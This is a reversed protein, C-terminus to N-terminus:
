DTSHGIVFPSPESERPYFVRPTQLLDDKSPAIDCPKQQRDRVLSGLLLKLELSPVARTPYDLWPRLYIQGDDHAAKGQKLGEEILAYTLLGHRIDKSEWADQNPQAATLVYMGKDYALQALGLSNMPGGRDEVPGLAQGSNCADILLVLRGADIREFAAALELDSIGHNRIIGLSADENPQDDHYGLDSPVLYFRNADKLGHGVFYIFVADEPQVTTIKSLEPPSGQPLPDSDGRAFRSLALLFNSKTATADSLPIISVSSFAHLSELQKRLETGFEEADSVAYKLNLKANGYDNIGVALIYANGKRALEQAGVVTLRGDPSKVDNQDFTYASFRNEGATITVHTLLHSKGDKDIPVEGRWARVLSGNRFLRADQITVHNSKVSSKAPQIELQVLVTRNVSVLQGAGSLQEDIQMQELAKKVNDPVNAPVDDRALSLAVQTQSQAPVVSVAVPVLAGGSLIDSLLGPRYHDKFLAELPVVRNSTEALRWMGLRWAGPSGDFFEGKAILWDNSRPLSLLICTQRGTTLDWIRTIGDWAISTLWRNCPVFAVASVSGTSGALVKALHGDATGWIRITRDRSGSALFQSDSSFTLSTVGDSHGQLSFAIKGSDFDWVRIVAGCNSAVWRGSPSFAVIGTDQQCERSALTRELQGTQISWLLVGEGAVQQAIFAGNPSIALETRPHPGSSTSWNRILVGTAPNWVAITGDQSGSVLFDGTPAFEVSDVEKTHGSLSRLLMGTSVDWIGVTGDANATAIWKADPSFGVGDVVTKTDLIRTQIGSALDWLYVGSFTNAALWRGDNSVKLDVGPRLIPEPPELAGFGVHDKTPLRPLYQITKGTEVDAIVVTGEDNGIAVKKGDQSLALSHPYMANMPLITRIKM